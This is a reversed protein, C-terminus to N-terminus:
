DGKIEWAIIDHKSLGTKKKGESFLQRSSLTLSMSVDLSLSRLLCCSSDCFERRWNTMVTTNIHCKRSVNPELLM